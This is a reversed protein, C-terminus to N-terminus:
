RADGVAMSVHLRRVLRAVTAVQHIVVVGCSLYVAMLVADSMGCLARAAAPLGLDGRSGVVNAGGVASAVLLAGDVVDVDVRHGAEWGLRRLVARASLRGSRDLRAIDLLPLAHPDTQRLQVPLVQLPVVATAPRPLLAPVLAGILQESSAPVPRKMATM